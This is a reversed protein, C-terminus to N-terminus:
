LLYIFEEEEEGRKNSCIKFYSKNLMQYLIIYNLIKYFYHSTLLTELILVIKERMNDSQDTYKELFTKISPIITDKILKTISKKNKLLFKINNIYINNKLIYKFLIFFFNLNQENFLDNEEDLKYNKICEENSDFIKILEDIMLKTLPIHEMDLQTLINITYEYDEFKKLKILSIIIDKYIIEINKDRFYNINFNLISDNYIKINNKIIINNNSKIKDLEEKEKEEDYKDTEKYYSILEIIIKAMIVKKYDSNNVIKCKENIEKIINIPYVYNVVYFSNEILLCFYFLYSLNDLNESFNIEVVKNINLSINEIKEKNFYLIKLNNIYNSNINFITQIVEFDNFLNLIPDNKIYESQNLAVCYNLSQKINLKNIIEFNKINNDNNDM